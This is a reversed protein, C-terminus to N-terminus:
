FPVELYIKHQTHVSQGYSSYPDSSKANYGTVSGGNLEM